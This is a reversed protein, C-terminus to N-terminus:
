HGSYASPVIDATGILTVSDSVIVSNVRGKSFVYLIGNNLIAKEPRFADDTEHFEIQGLFEFGTATSRYLAYRYCNDLGDFYGYPLGVVDNSVFMLGNNEIAASEATAENTVTESYALRLEGAADKVIKSLLIGGGPAKTLTVYGDACAVLGEAKDKSPKENLLVPKSLDSLDIGCTSNSGSFYIRDGDRTANTLAGPIDVGSPLKNMTEDYIGLTTVYGAETDRITTVAIASGFTSVGAGSLAVGDIDVSGAYVVEGGALSFVRVTTFDKGDYNEYGLLYVAGNRLLVRGEYGLVAKVSVTGNVNIGTIVTYDTNSVYDPIMIDSPQIYFKTGNLSYSPVYSELDGVGIIPANRYNNYATVLYLSGNNFNMDILSGSQETSSTLAPEGGSIDYVCVEVSNRSEATPEAGYLSDILGDVLSDEGDANDEAAAGGIVSYVAVVKTGDVYFGELTKASQDTFVPFINGSYSIGAGSTSIVRLINGDKVLLFGNGFKVSESDYEADNEPLPLKEEVNEAPAPAPDEPTEPATPVTPTEPEREPEASTAPESVEPEPKETVPNQATVSGGPTTDNTNENYSHEIDEIASDLTKNSDDIYYKEFSKHVDGYDSAYSGGAKPQEPIEPTKGANAYGYIGLALAACAAISAVSRFAASTKRKSGSVTINKERESTKDEKVERVPAASSVTITKKEATATRESLMAAINQPELREPIHLQEYLELYPNGAKNAM